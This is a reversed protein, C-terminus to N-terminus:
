HNSRIEDLGPISNSHGYSLQSDTDATASNQKIGWSSQM